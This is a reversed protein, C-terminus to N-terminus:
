KGITSVVEAIFKRHKKKFILSNDQSALGIKGKKYGTRPTFKFSIVGRTFLSPKRVDVKTIDEFYIDITRKGLLRNIMNPKITVKENDVTLKGTVLKVSKM